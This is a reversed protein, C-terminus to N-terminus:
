RALFQNFEGTPEAWEVQVQDVRAMRPGEHCWAVFQQVERGGGEAVVEVRGDPLNRAAGQLHLKEAEIRASARFFVGQVLGSIVMKVRKRM